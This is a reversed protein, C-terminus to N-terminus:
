CVNTDTRAKVPTNGGEVARPSFSRAM